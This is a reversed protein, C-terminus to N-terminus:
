AKKYQRSKKGHSVLTKYQHTAADFIYRIDGRGKHGRFKNLQKADVAIEGKNKLKHLHYKKEFKKQEQPSLEAYQALIIQIKGLEYHCANRQADNLKAEMDPNRTRYLKRGKIGVHEKIDDGVEDNLLKDFFQRILALDIDDLSHATMFVILASFIFIFGIIFTLISSVKSVCVAAGTIVAKSAIMLVVGILLLFLGSLKRTIAM